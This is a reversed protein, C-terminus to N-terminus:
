RQMAMVHVQQSADQQAQQLEAAAERRQRERAIKSAATLVHLEAPALMDPSFGSVAVFGPQDGLAESVRNWLFFPSTTPLLVMKRKPEPMAFYTTWVVLTACTGLTGFLYIPSYPSRAGGTTLWASQVLSGTALIGLGLSVGFIHSRYTLGLHRIAFCV